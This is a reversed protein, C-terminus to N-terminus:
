MTFSIKRQIAIPLEEYPFGKSVCGILTNYYMDNKKKMLIAVVNEPHSVYDTIPRKMVTVPVPLSPAPLRNDFGLIGNQNGIGVEFNNKETILDATGMKYIKAYRYDLVKPLADLKASAAKRSEKFQVLNLQVAGHFCHEFFTSASIKDRKFGALHIFNEKGFFVEYYKYPIDPKNGARYIYLVKHEAYQSYKVAALHLAKTLEADSKAQEHNLRIQNKM